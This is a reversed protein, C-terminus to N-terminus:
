KKGSILMFNIDDGRCIVELKGVFFPAQVPGKGRKIMKRNNKVVKSMYISTFQLVAFGIMGVAAIIGTRNMARCKGVKILTYCRLFVIDM